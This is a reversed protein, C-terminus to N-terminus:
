LLKFHTCSMRGALQEQLNAIRRQLIERHFRATNVREIKLLSQLIMQMEYLADKAALNIYEYIQQSVHSSVARGTAVTVGLHKEFHDEPSCISLGTWFRGDPLILAVATGRYGNDDRKSDHVTFFACEVEPFRKSFKRKEFKM